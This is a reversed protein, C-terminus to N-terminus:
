VVYMDEAARLLEERFQPHALEIIALARERTTKGKLNAVGFETALYHIDNRPTTVVTGEPLRPVIRSVSGRQATSQLALISKGGNSDYAGRVFDLQGGSGSFQQGGLSEANAQGTLDVQLISNISILGDNGAIISPRNTYDVPRSEMAPNDHLFERAESNGMAFTFVHRNPHFNKRRGNAVGSRVLDILGQGFLETHIGLDRRDALYRCVADPLSGIGVQLTAGDPVQAAVRRAIEDDLPDLPVAPPDVLPEPREVIASVESVHVYGDGHIRPMGENVEVILQKASRAAAGTFGNALGFNFYGARDMPSVTLAMVDIALHERILRPLQHLHNPLYSHLGAKVMGREAAGVFLSNLEVRDALDLALISEIAAPSAMGGFVRLKKLDGLRLRTALAWFTAIPENHGFAHAFLAGDPMGAVAEDASKLKERYATTVGSM